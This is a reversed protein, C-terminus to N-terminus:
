SYHFYHRKPMAPHQCGYALSRERLWWAAVRDGLSLLSVPMDVRWLEGGMKCNMQLAIKTAIAMVTQQKGLTRAVVCQSPTPCDTCLYKKIADYKDKRNSSLLCVVQFCVLVENCLVLLHSASLLPVPRHQQPCKDSM